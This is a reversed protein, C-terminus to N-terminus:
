HGEDRAADDLKALLRIGDLEREDAEGGREHLSDVQNLGGGVVYGCDILVRNKGQVDLLGLLQVIEQFQQLADYHFLTLDVWLDDLM